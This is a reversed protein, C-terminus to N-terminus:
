ESRESGRPVTLIRLDTNMSFDRKMPVFAIRTTVLFVGVSEKEIYSNAYDWGLYANTVFVPQCIRLVVALRIM